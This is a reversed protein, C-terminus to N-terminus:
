WRGHQAAVWLLVGWAVAVPHFGTGGRWQPPQCEQRGGEVRIWVVPGSLVELGICLSVLSLSMYLFLKKFNVKVTGNEKDLM